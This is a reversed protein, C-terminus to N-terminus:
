KLRGLGQLQNGTTFTWEYTRQGGALQVNAVALYITGRKLVAKPIVFVVNRIVLRKLLPKDPTHLWCPVKTGKEFKQGRKKAEYLNMTASGINQQVLRTFQLSVPYGTNKQADFDLGVDALPNPHETYAFQRPVNKMGNPPWAAFACNRELEQDRPEQLSGMDLVVVECKGSADYALGFRKINYELLPFRHYVTGIWGDISRKADLAGNSWIIVSRLGARMGRPTFGEKAPDEEHAEPWKWHEEHKGFFKAHDKCAATAESDLECEPLCRNWQGEPVNNTTATGRGAKKPRAKEGTEAKWCTVARRVANLRDLGLLEDKNPFEPLLPPGYGTAAATVSRGSAWDRWEAEVQDLPMEFITAGIENIKEPFPIPKNPCERVFYLWQTPFRAMAWTAFSWTKLRIDPKFNYLQTRPVVNLAVDTHGLAQNRMERLWWNAGEPLEKKGTSVTGEPEAGFKAFCTSKLFWTAAHHVGELLGTNCDFHSGLGYHWTHAILYDHMYSPMNITVVQCGRNGIAFNINMFRGKRDPALKPNQELFKKMELETWLIGIWRWTKMRARALQKTDEDDGVCFDLFELAREGWQVVDDANEQAGRVFVTFHETRAGFLKLGTKALVTPIETVPKPDYKKKALTLAFTELEKMRRMFAVEAETGYYTVGNNDYPKHGLADHAQRDLPNYLIAHHLQFAGREKHKDSKVMRLGLVRHRGGLQVCAKRWRQQVEYRGKRNSKDLWLKRKKPAVLKWKGGERRYDLAARARSHNPDYQSLILEYSTKEMPGFKKSRAFSAFRLLISTASKKLQADAEELSGTADGQAAVPVLFLALIALLHSLPRRLHLVSRSENM